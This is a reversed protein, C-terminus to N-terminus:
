GAAKPTAQRTDGRVVERAVRIFELLRPDSAPRRWVLASALDPLGTIPVFALELEGMYPEASAVTPFVVDGRAIRVALDLVGGEGVRIRTGRITRGSPTRTPAVAEQLEKPWRAFRLVRHDALEEVTVSERDALPHDRAVAVARRQRALTPGVVLDHQRLPIWTAMADLEGSRLRAFPDDWSAQVVEVDCRSQRAEFAQIIEGVRRGGAPGSFVGLRVTGEPGRAAPESRKLVEDLDAVAPGLERLFSEGLRTLQVHRSTRHLLPAGLKDELARLSQSVRSTTIELREATRGFHLEEALALFLRLERLDVTQWM